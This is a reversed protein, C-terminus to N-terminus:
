GRANDADQPPRQRDAKSEAQKQRFEGSRYQPFFSERSSAQTSSLVDYAERDFIRGCLYATRRGTSWGAKFRSLGDQQDGSVGAGAGLGLWEMRALRFYEIAHRFLAFSARTAYGRESYAGLHYYAVRGLVYWLVIGVTEQQILGRFAVLGPVKLQREFSARSFATMGDIGHRECLVQYLGLWDDLINGPNALAEVEVIDMARSSNRRHHPSIFDAPEMRLDVVFHEKFPRHLDPFCESLLERSYDGFPDTVMTVCVAETGLEVLDPCLKSWERCCFLPYLGMADFLGSGAIPRKLVWGQCSPLYRLGGWEAFAEAYLPDRYGLLEFITARSPLAASERDCAVIEGLMDVM